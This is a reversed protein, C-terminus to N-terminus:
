VKCTVSLLAGLPQPALLSLLPFHDALNKKLGWWPLQQFSPCDMGGLGGGCEVMDWSLPRM